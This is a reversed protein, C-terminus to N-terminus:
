CSALDGPHIVSLEKFRRFDNRDFSLIEKVENSLMGAALRADHVQVGSVEYRILLDKLIEDTNETEAMFSFQSEVVTLRSAAEQLSLGLGGPGTRTCVNWFEALNQSTYLLIADDDQLLRVARSASAHETSIENTLHLLVNSDGLVFRDASV